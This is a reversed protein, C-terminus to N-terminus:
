RSGEGRDVSSGSLSSCSPTSEASESRYEEDGLARRVTWSAAELSLVPWAKCVELEPLLLSVQPSPTGEGSSGARIEVTRKMGRLLDTHMYGTLMCCQSCIGGEIENVPFGAALAMIRM